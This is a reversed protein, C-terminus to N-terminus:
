LKRFLKRNLVGGYYILECLDHADVTETSLVVLLVNEVPLQEPGHLLEVAEVVAGHAVDPGGSVRPAATAATAATAASAGCTGVDVTLMLIGGLGPLGGQGLLHLGPLEPDLAAVPLDYM